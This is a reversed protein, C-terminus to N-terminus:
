ILGRNKLMSWIRPFHIYAFNWANSENLNYKYCMEVRYVYDPDNSNDIIDPEVSVNNINALALYASDCISCYEYFKDKNYYMEWIYIDYNM